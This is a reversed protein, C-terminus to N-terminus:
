YIVVSSIRFYSDDERLVEVGIQYDDNASPQWYVGDKHKLVVADKGLLTVSSVTKGNVTISMDGQQIADVRLDGPKCKGWDCVPLILIILGKMEKRNYKYALKEKENPFTMKMVGQKSHTYFFDKHDPTLRFHCTKDRSRGLEFTLPMVDREEEERRALTAKGMEIGTDYQEFQFATAGGIKDTNTTYGLYRSMAPLRGTRCISRGKILLDLDIEANEGYLMNKDKPLDAKKFAELADKEKNKLEKLLASSDLNPNAVLEELADVLTQSLFFALMHGDLAHLKRSFSAFFTLHFLEEQYDRFVNM